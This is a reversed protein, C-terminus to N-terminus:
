QSLKWGKHSNRRGHIVGSLHGRSLNYKVRLNHQTCKEVTGDKHVFTYVTHDYRGHDKGYKHNSRDLLHHTGNRVLDRQTRRQMEGGLFPHIGDDIM